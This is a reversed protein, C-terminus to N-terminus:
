MLDFRVDKLVDGPGTGEVVRERLVPPVEGGIIQVGEQPTMPPGAKQPGEGAGMALPAPKSDGEDHGGSYTLTGLPLFLSGFLTDSVDPGVRVSSVYPVTYKFLWTWWRKGQADVLYWMVRKVMPVMLGKAPEFVEDVLMVRGKEVYPGASVKV